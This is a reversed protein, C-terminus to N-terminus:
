TRPLCKRLGFRFTARSCTLHMREFQLDHLEFTLGLSEFILPVRQLALDAVHLLILGALARLPVNKTALSTSDFLVNYTKVLHVFKM